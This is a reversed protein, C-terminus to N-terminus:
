TGEGGVGTKHKVSGAGYFYYIYNYNLLTQLLPVKVLNKSVYFNIIRSDLITILECEVAKTKVSRLSVSEANAHLARQETILITKSYNCKVSRKNEM